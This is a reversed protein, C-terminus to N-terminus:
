LKSESGDARVQRSFESLVDMTDLARVVQEPQVQVQEVQARDGQAPPAQPAIGPRELVIGAAVLLCAMAAAPVARRLTVERFPRVLPEWWSTQAEIRRYLRSDFDASVPAAEWADMAEWVARQGAVFERCAGCRAVHRDLIAAAEPALERACYDVLVQANEPTDLPCNM